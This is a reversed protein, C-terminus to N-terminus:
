HCSFLFFTLLELIMSNNSNSPRYLDGPGVGRYHVPVGVVGDHQESGRGAQGKIDGPVLCGGGGQAVQELAKGGKDHFFM